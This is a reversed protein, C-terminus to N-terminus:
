FGHSLSLRAGTTEYFVRTRDFSSPPDDPLTKDRGMKQYQYYDVNLDWHKIIGVYQATAGMYWGYSPLGISYRAVGFFGGLAFHRALRYRYDLARLGILGHQDAQDFEVRVGLDGHESVPRRGGIGLHYTTKFPTVVNVTDVTLIKTVRNYSVGVDVLITTSTSEDDNAYVGSHSHTSAFDFSGAIRTMSKGYIDKGTAAELGIAHERWTTSYRLGLEQYKKYSMAQVDASNWRPDYRLERYRLQMEHKSGIRAGLRWMQSSGGVASDPARNDAFWHGLSFGDNRMGMPYISHVYWGNQWESAEYSFDFNNWLKPFDVGLTLSTDGFYKVGSYASDEAAYEIHVAFPVHAQFLASATVAAQQNGFELGNATDGRNVANNDFLAKYFQKLSTGGRAGGGYEMLRNIAIAYGDAPEIGLQVGALNPHGDTTTDYYRIGKQESMRALFFEYNFGLRTLPRYNSITISPMTPAETSMLMSSDTNPSFWHDRFGFDLQAFDYGVSVISGAPVVKGQYAVAGANILFNNGPQYYGSFRADWKSDISQGHSNPLTAGTNGSSSSIEGQLTTIKATHMYRDLYDRVEECLQQDQACAKPLADLVVAAPIPRRMVPKDALILVREIKREIDPSINLPLYPSVGRAQCAVNICLAFPIVTYQSAYSRKKRILM